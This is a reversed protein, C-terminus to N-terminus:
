DTVTVWVPNTYARQGQEDEIILSYWTDADPRVVFEVQQLANEGDYLRKEIEEGGGILQVSRLGSVAQVAYSLALDTNKRHALDSGFMIEPYVLPGQSAFAHGAKLGAVYKMVSLDREVHVFTRASGSPELWVDHADSGGALYKRTGVNWLQWAYEITQQNRESAGEHIGAEIEILDYGADFGGPVEAKLLSSFYGYGMFPHNAEVLDAGMRRAEAFIEQVTSRGPDISIDEGDDLPFANFHAWSPSMETGAIFLVERRAALEQMRANNAVSDHDSLFAIDVGAALESRLVYEAETFGDLVDSHHHLDASYWGRTQPQAFIPIQVKLVQTEGARLVNEITQPLSTFGGGASVEFVYEGPAMSTEVVGIADLETFLATKGFYGILPSPGSQISIRADIPSNGTSETVQFRVNGPAEVDSFDIEIDSGPEVAITRASGQSHGEATAYIQYDGAPLEFSYKGNQGVAWAYPQGERSAIVAPRSISKGKVSSVKGSIRGSELGQLVIETKVFPALSGSNEIQLWAGFSRSAGPKLEHQLYRDRGDYAVLTSFPTHLGIAWTEGYAASWDAFAKDEAATNEGYLGPVGFLSGGNPWAVYGSVLETLSEDGTNTMTTVIHIRSDADRITFATELEVDEWDRLVRIVVEGASKEEVTVNQYSTPWNTWTNPLFDALSAIDFAIQGDHIPAIDIIGGRAVGWPPATDVAFAVAFVGNNVTIDRAGVADGRPINTPGTTVSIEALAASMPLLALLTLVLLPNRRM